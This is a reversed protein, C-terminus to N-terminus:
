PVRLSLPARRARCTSKESPLLLLLLLLLLPVPYPVRFSLSFLVRIASIGSAALLLCCAALLLVLAGAHRINRPVRGRVPLRPLGADPEGPWPCTM